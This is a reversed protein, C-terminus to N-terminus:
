CGWPAGAFTSLSCNIWVIGAHFARELDASASVCYSVDIFLQEQM